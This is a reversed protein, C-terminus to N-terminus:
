KYSKRIEEWYMAKLQNARELNREKDYIRVVDKVEKRRYFVGPAADFNNQDLNNKINATINQFNNWSINEPLEIYYKSETNCDWYIGEDQEEVSFVKNITIISDKDIKKYRAFKVGEDRYLEQLEQLLKFACLYKIRICKYEYPHIYITGESANFKHRVQKKIRKTKRAIDEFSYNETVVFFISRPSSLDPFNEGLYGPFPNLNELVLTNDIIKSEINSLKERKKIYGTIELLPKNNCM